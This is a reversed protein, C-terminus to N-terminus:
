LYREVVSWYFAWSNPFNFYFSSSAWLPIEYEVSGMAMDKFTFKFLFVYLSNSQHAIKVCNSHSDSWLYPSCKGVVPDFNVAIWAYKRSCNYYLQIIISLADSFRGIFANRDQPSLVTMVLVFNHKSSM